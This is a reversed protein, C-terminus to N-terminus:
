ETKALREPFSNIAFNVYLLNFFFWAFGNHKIVKGYKEKAYNEIKKLMKLSLILQLIVCGTSFILVYFKMKINLLLYDSYDMSIADQMNNFFFSPTAQYLFYLISLAIVWGINFQPKERNNLNNFEKYRQAVWIIPYIGLTLMSFLIMKLTSIKKTFPLEHNRVTLNEQSKEELWEKCHRCKKAEILIEEGCYPCQKTEAM